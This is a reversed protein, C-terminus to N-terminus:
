IKYRRKPQSELVRAVSPKKRMVEFFSRLEPRGDFLMDKHLDWRLLMYLYFDAATLVDGCIFPALENEIFNYIELQEKQACSRLEEFSEHGIYYQSHHQRHYAPYISTAMLSLFQNYRDYLNTAREPVLKNFRDTIHDVIAITEFILSQDPCILIPIRGLPHTLAFNCNKFEKPDTFIIEYHVGIESFLFEVILSGAGSRGVIKYLSQNM